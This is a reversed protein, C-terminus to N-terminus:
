GMFLCAYLKHGDKHEYGSRMISLFRINPIDAKPFLYMMKKYCVYM